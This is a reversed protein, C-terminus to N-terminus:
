RSLDSCGRSNSSPVPRAEFAWIGHYHHIGTRPEVAAHWGMWRRMSAAEISESSMRAASDSPEVLRGPPGPRRQTTQMFLAQSSSVLPQQAPPPLSFAGPQHTPHGWASLWWQLVVFYLLSFLDRSDGHWEGRLIYWLAVPWPRTGGRLESHGGGWSRRAISRILAWCQGGWGSCSWWWQQDRYDAAAPPTTDDHRRHQAASLWCM